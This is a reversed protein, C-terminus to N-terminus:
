CLLGSDPRLAPEASLEAFLGARLDAEIKTRDELSCALLHVHIENAGIRAACQRIEALNLSMSQHRTRAIRLVQRSGDAERRVMLYNAEPLVPCAILTHITHRYRRGSAGTWNQSAHALGDALRWADSTCAEVQRPEPEFHTVHLGM